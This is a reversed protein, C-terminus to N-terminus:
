IGSSVSWLTKQTIQGVSCKEFKTKVKKNNNHHLASFLPHYLITYGTVTATCDLADATKVRESVPIMPEFGVRSMSTQTCKNRTQTTRHTPLLRVTPQDGWSLLGVSQTHILYSCLHWPGCPSYLWLSLSLSIFNYTSSFPHSPICHTSWDWFLFCHVYYVHNHVKPNWIHHHIEQGALRSNAEQSTSQCV